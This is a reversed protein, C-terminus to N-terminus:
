GPGSGGQPGTVSAGSTAPEFEANSIKEEKVGGFFMTKQLPQSHKKVNEERSISEM